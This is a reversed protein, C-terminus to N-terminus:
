KIILDLANFHKLKFFYTIEFGIQLIVTCGLKDQYHDSKQLNTNSIKNKIKWLSIEVGCM